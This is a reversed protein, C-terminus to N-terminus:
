EKMPMVVCIYDSNKEPSFTVPSTPNNYSLIVNEDEINQLVDKIFNPNFLIAFKEGSYEIDTEIEGSGTNSSQASVKMKNNEFSMKIAGTSGTLLNNAFLAAQKVATLTEQVNLKISSLNNKPMVQKYNPFVGEILKTQFVIDNIVFTALNDSINLNVNAIASNLSVIKCFDAVAKTPIIAKGTANKDIDNLGIYALRKGDTSVIELKGNEMVMYEGTIVFRQMDKSVAFLTKSFMSVLNKTNLTITNKTDYEPLKPFDKVDMGTLTFKSKKTKININNDTTKIEINEETIEKVIEAFKKAPITIEGDEIIEGKIFCEISTELDTATLKIKQDKAEFLFNSLVPLSIKNGVIPVVMQLGKMLEDKTVITKM